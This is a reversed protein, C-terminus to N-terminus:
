FLFAEGRKKGEKAEGREGGGGGRREGVLDKNMKKLGLSEAGLERPLAPSLARPALTEAPSPLPPPPPPRKRTPTPTRLGTAGM